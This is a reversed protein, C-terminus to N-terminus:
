LRIGLRKLISKHKNMQRVSCTSFPIDEIKKWRRYRILMLYTSCKLKRTLMKAKLYDDRLQAM